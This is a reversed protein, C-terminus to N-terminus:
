ELMIRKESGDPVVCNPCADKFFETYIDNSNEGNADYHSLHQLVLLKISGGQLMDAVDWGSLHTPSHRNYFLDNINCILTTARKAVMEISEHKEIITKFEGNTSDPSVIGDSTEVRTAYGTDSIYVINKDAHTIEFGFTHEISHYLQVPAFGQLSDWTINSGFDTDDRLVSLHIFESTQVLKQYYAPLIDDIVNQPLILDITTATKAVMDLFVLLDGSHDLHQHSVFIARVDKITYGTTTFRSYFDVGPDVVLLGDAFSLLFGNFYWQMARDVISPQHVTKPIIIGTFEASPSTDKKLVSKLADKDTRLQKNKDLQKQLKNM